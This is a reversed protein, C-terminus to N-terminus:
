VIVFKEQSKEVFLTKDVGEGSYGNNMLFQTLREYWARLAQKLGYLEKKSNIRLILILLILLDKPSSLMCKENMYGNLFASKIDMQYLRVKNRNINVNENSKNKFIWKTGIVNVSETRPVLAFGCYQFQMRGYVEGFQKGRMTGEEEGGHLGEIWFDDEDEERTSCAAKPIEGPEDNRAFRGRIRPRNDALTKRCAYKITKNFNRQTRKARYKLIREKREEASYRGVKFNGEEMLSSGNEMRGMGSNQLDGTSFVRRIQSSFFDSEPCPLSHHNNPFNPSEMLLSELRSQFGPKESFSRHLLLSKDVVATATATAANESPPDFCLPQNFGLLSEESKVDFNSLNQFGNSSSSSPHSLLHFDTPHSLSLGQMPIFHDISNSNFGDPLPNEQSPISNLIDVASDSFNPSYHDSFFQLEADSPFVLDSSSCRFLSSSSSSDGHIFLDSSM